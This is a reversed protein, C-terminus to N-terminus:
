IYLCIYYDGMYGFPVCEIGSVMKMKDYYSTLTTKTQLVKFLEHNSSRISVVNRV